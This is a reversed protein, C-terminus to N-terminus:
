AVGELWEPWVLVPVLGLACAWLDAERESAGGAAKARYIAREATQEKCGQRMAVLRALQTVAPVEVVISHPGMERTEVFPPLLRLLPELPYRALAGM